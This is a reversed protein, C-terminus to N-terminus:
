FRKERERAINVKIARGNLEYGNLADIAKSAGDENGMEVFAFGKSRGSFSDRIVKVSTVEGHERFLGELEEESAKFPINGVFLKKSM